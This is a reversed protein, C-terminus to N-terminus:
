PPSVSGWCMAWVNQRNKYLWWPVKDPNTHKWHWFGKTPVEDGTGEKFERESEVLLEDMEKPISTPMDLYRQAKMVEVMFEFAERGGPEARWDVDDLKNMYIEVKNVMHHEERIIIGAVRLCEQGISLLVGFYVVYAAGVGTLSAAAEALKLGSRGQSMTRDMETAGEGGGLINLAAELGEYAALVKHAIEAMPGVKEIFEDVHTIEDNLWGVTEMCKEHIELLASTVELVKGTVTTLKELAAHNKALFAGRQYDAMKPPIQEVTKRAKDANEAASRLQQRAKYAKFSAMDQRARTFAQQWVKAQNVTPQDLPAKGQAQLTPEWGKLQKVLDEAETRSPEGQPLDAADKMLQDSAMRGLALLSDYTTAKFWGISVSPAEAVPAAPVRQATQPSAQGAARDNHLLQGVAANGAMRQLRWVAQALPPGSRSQSRAGNSAAHEQVPGAQNERTNPQRKPM